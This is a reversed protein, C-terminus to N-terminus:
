ESGSESGKARAAAGKTRGAAAEAGQGGAATEGETMQAACRSCLGVWEQMDEAMRQLSHQQWDAIAQMSGSPDGGDGNVKRVTELASKAAEHRRAFWARSFAEAEDLLGDQAKWFQQMRTALMPNVALMGPTQKMMEAFTTKADTAM